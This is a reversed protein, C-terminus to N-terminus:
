FGVGGWNAQKPSCTLKSFDGPFGYVDEKARRKLVKECVSTWGESCQVSFSGASASVELSHSPADQAATLDLPWRLGGVM